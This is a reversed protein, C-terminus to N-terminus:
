SFFPLGRSSDRVRQSELLTLGHLWSSWVADGGGPQCYSPWSCSLRKWDRWSPAKTGQDVTAGGTTAPFLSQDAECSTVWSEGTSLGVNARDRPRGTLEWIKEALASPTVVMGQNHFAAPLLHFGWRRLPALHPRGTAEELLSRTPASLCLTVPGPANWITQFVIRTADAFGGYAKETATQAATVQSLRHKAVHSVLLRPLLVVCRNVRSIQALLARAHITVEPDRIHNWFDLVLLTQEDGSGRLAKSLSEADSWTARILEDLGEGGALATKENPDMQLAIIPKKECRARFREALETALLSIGGGWCVIRM